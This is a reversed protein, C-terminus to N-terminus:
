SQGLGKSARGLQLFQASSNGCLRQRNKSLRFQCVVWLDYYIWVTDALATSRTCAAYASPHTCIRLFSPYSCDWLLSPNHFCDSLPSHYRSPASAGHALPIDIRGNHSGPYCVVNTHFIPVPQSQHMRVAIFNRWGIWSSLTENLRQGRIWDRWGSGALGREFLPGAFLIGTLLLARGIESISIPYWGLLRLTEFFSLEAHINLVYISTLTSAIVSFTVFRIRSRIVSPADRSLSPSPRTTKSLYFPFM